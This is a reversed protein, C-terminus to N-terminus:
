GEPAFHVYDGKALEPFERRRLDLYQSPYLGSFRRFERNFHAQDYFDASHALASWNVSRRPDVEELLAQLRYIRALVKPSLGTARKFRDNVYRPSLGTSEYAEALSLGGCSSKIMRYLTWLWGEPPSSAQELLAQHLRCHTDTDAADTLMGEVLGVFGSPLIKRADLTRDVISRMNLGFLAHFGIPEFLLGLVHTEGGPTNFIPSTQVGHLWSHGFEQNDFVTESKGLRHPRGRNFIVVM